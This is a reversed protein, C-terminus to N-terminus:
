KRAKVTENGYFETITPRTVSAARLVIDKSYVLDRNLKMRVVRFLNTCFLINRILSTDFRAGGMNPLANPTEIVAGDKIYTTKLPFRQGMTDGTNPYIELWLVDYANQSTFTSSLLYTMNKDVYNKFATENANLDVFLKILKNVGSEKKGSPVHNFHNKVKTFVKSNWDSNYISHDAIPGISTPYNRINYLSSLLVKNYLQDSLFKPRGLEKTNADGLFMGQLYIFASSHDFTNGGVKASPEYQGERKELDNIRTEIPEKVLISLIQIRKISEILGNYKTNGTSLGELINKMDVLVVDIINDNVKLLHDLEDRSMTHIERKVYDVSFCEKLIEIEEITIPKIKDIKDTLNETLEILRDLITRGRVESMLQKELEIGIPNFVTEDIDLEPRTEIERLTRAEFPKDSVNIVEPADYLGPASLRERNVESIINNVKHVKSLLSEKLKKKDPQNNKLDDLQQNLYSIDRTLDIVKENLKENDISLKKNNIKENLDDIFSKILNTSSQNTYGSFSMYPDILLGCLADDSSRIHEPNEYLKINDCLKNRHIRTRFAFDKGELGHSYLTEMMMLDFTYAYNYLNVLPIERMLAHVNIPVINLDIINQIHLKTPRDTDKCLRGILETISDSPSPNETIRIVRVLNNILSYVVRNKYKDNLNSLGRKRDKDTDIDSNDIFKYLEAFLANKVFHGKNHRGEYLYRQLSVVTKFNSELLSKDCKSRVDVSMNYRECINILGPAQELSAKKHYDQLISRTGYAYKFENTGVSSVPILDQATSQM